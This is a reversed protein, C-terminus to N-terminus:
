LPNNAAEIILQRWEQVGANDYAYEEVLLRTFKAIVGAGFGSELMVFFIAPKDFCRYIDEFTRFDSIISTNSKTDRSIAQTRKEQLIEVLSITSNSFEDILIWELYTTLGEQLCIESWKTVTVVNGIWQHVIEHALISHAMRYKPYAMWRENLTILGFNEVGNIPLSTAILSLKKLPYEFGTFNSMFLLAQITELKMWTPREATMQEPYLIELEPLHLKHDKAQHI